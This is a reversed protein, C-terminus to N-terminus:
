ARQDAGLHFCLSQRPTRRGPPCVERMEGGLKSRLSATASRQAIRRRSPSGQCSRVSLSRRRGGPGARRGREGNAESPGSVTTGADSGASFGGMGPSDRIDVRVDHKVHFVPLERRRGRVSGLRLHFGTLKTGQSCRALSHSTSRGRDSQADWWVSLHCLVILLVRHKVHFVESRAVHRSRRRRRHLRTLVPHRRGLTAFSGREATTGKKPTAEASMAPDIGHTAHQSSIVQDGLARRQDDPGAIDDIDSWSVRFPGSEHKYGRWAARPPNRGTVEIDITRDANHADSIVGGLEGCRQPLANLHDLVVGLAAPGPAPVGVTPLSPNRM